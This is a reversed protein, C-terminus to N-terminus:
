GSRSGSKEVVRGLATVPLDPTLLAKAPYRDITTLPYYDGAKRARATTKITLKEFAKLRQAPTQNKGAVLSYSTDSSRQGGSGFFSTM